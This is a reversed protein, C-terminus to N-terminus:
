GLRRRPEPKKVRASRILNILNILRSPDACSMPLSSPEMPLLQDGIHYFGTTCGVLFGGNWRITKLINRFWGHFQHNPPHHNMMNGWLWMLCTFSVALIIIRVTCLITNPPFTNKPSSPMGDICWICTHTFALKCPLFQHFASPKDHWTTKTSYLLGCFFFMGLTAVLLKALRLASPPAKQERQKKDALGREYLVQPQLLSGHWILTM